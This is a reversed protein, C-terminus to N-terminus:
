VNEWMTLSDTWIIGFNYSEKQRNKDYISSTVASGNPHQVLKQIFLSRVRHDEKTISDTNM